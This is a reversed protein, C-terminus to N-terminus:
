PVQSILGDRHTIERFEEIMKIVKEDEWDGHKYQTRMAQDVDWLISFFDDAHMAMWHAHRDDPDSLDYELIAKAM